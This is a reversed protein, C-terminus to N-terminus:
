KRNGKRVRPALWPYADLGYGTLRNHYFYVLSADGLYLQEGRREVARPLHYLSLAKVGREFVERPGALLEQSAHIMGNASLGRIGTLVREVRKILQATSIPESLRESRLLRYLDKEGACEALEHILAFAVVHTPLITNNERLSQAIARGLERTYQRDRAEDIVPVGEADCVYQEPHIVRGHPDLSQGHMDVHNGFPDLARGIRVHIQGDMALLSSVFNLIREPRSFEDDEIIYRSKGEDKLYDEILTEAELVLHYSVTAPVIFVRPRPAKDILNLIYAELGSGLLGLKLESEIAGSRARTGGPFFLNPMGHRLTTVCYNKLTRKYLAEDKLRDVKYAGLNQMFFGLMKNSFLNKGAGYVFPPLGARNLAYAMVPSDMHSGHTPTVVVTGLSSLRALQDSAGSIVIREDLDEREFPRTILRTFPSASLFLSLVRPLVKEALRYVRADFHGGIESVYHQALRHTAAELARADRGHIVSRVYTLAQAEAQDVGGSRMRKGAHYLCDNLVEDLSERGSRCRAISEDASRQAAERLIAQELSSEPM